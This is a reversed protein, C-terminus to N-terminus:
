FRGCLGEFGDLLNRLIDNERAFNNVQDAEDSCSAVIESAGEFDLNVSVEIDAQADCDYASDDFEVSGVDDYFPDALSEDSVKSILESGPASRYGSNRYEIAGLFDRSSLDEEILQDKFALETVAADQVSEGSLKAFIVKKSLRGRYRNLFNEFLAGSSDVTLAAKFRNMESISLYKVEASRAVTPDFELEGSEVKLRGRVTADFTGYNDDGVRHVVYTGDLKVMGEEYVKVSVGESNTGCTWFSYGFHQANTKNENAPAIKIFSSRQVASDATFNIKIVRASNGAPEKFLQTVDGSPLEGSVVSLVGSDLNATTPLSRAYCINSASRLLPEFTYGIDEVTTAGEYGASQGDVASIFFQGCANSDPLERLTELIASTWFVNGVGIDSIDVM